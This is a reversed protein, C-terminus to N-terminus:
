SEISILPPLFYKIKREFIFDKMKLIWRCKEIKIYKEEIEKFNEESQYIMKLLYVRLHSSSQTDLCFLDDFM